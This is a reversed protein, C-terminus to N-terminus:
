DMLNPLNVAEEWQSLTLTALDAPAMSEPVCRQALYLNPACAITCGLSGHEVFLYKCGIYIKDYIVQQDKGTLAIGYTVKRLLGDMYGIMDNENNTDNGFLGTDHWLMVAAVDRNSPIAVAMVSWVWVPGHAEIMRNCGIVHAGPMIPFRQEDVTGFLRETAKLLPKLDYVPIEGAGQQPQLYIPKQTDLEDNRVLDYGWLAGNLGIYHSCGHLNVQGMYADNRACRKYAVGIQSITDLNNLLVSDSSMKLAVVYGNGNIAGPNMYGMCFNPDGGIAGEAVKAVDYHVDYDLEEMIRIM